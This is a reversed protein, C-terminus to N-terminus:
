KPWRKRWKNMLGQGSNCSSDIPIIFKSRELLKKLINAAVPKEPQREFAPFDVVLVGNQFTRLCKM